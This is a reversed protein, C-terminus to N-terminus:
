HAAAAMLEQLHLSTSAAAEYSGLVGHVHRLVWERVVVTM